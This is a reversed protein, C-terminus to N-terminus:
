TLSKSFLFLSNEGGLGTLEDFVQLSLVKLTMLSKILSSLGNTLMFKECTTWCCVFRRFDILVALFVTTLVFLAVGQLYFLM